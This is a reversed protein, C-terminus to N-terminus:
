DIRDSWFIAVVVCFICGTIVGIGIGAFIAQPINWAPFQAAATRILLTPMFTLFPKLLRAQVQCNFSTVLLLPLPFLPLSRPTSPFIFGNIFQLHLHLNSPIINHPFSIRNQHLAALSPLLSPPDKRIPIPASTSAAPRRSSRSATSFLQM